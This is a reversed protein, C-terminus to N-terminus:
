QQRRPFRVACLTLNSKKTVIVVCMLLTMLKTKTTVLVRKDEVIRVLKSVNTTWSDLGVEEDRRKFLTCRLVLVESVNNM